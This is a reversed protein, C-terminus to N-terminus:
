RMGRNVLLGKVLIEVAFLCVQAENLYDAFSSDDM